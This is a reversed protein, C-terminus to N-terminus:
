DDNDVTVNTISSVLVLVRNLHQKISSFHYKRGSPLEPDEEDDDINEERSNPQQSNEQEITVLAEPASSTMGLASARDQVLQAVEELHELDTPEM